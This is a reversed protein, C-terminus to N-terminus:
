PKGKAGTNAPAAPVFVPPPPPVYAPNDNTNPSQREVGIDRQVRAFPPEVRRDANRDAQNIRPTRDTQNITPNQTTTPNTPTTVPPNYYIWPLNMGWIDYGLWYGYPSRWGSGFPLFCYGRWVPDYVWLGYSDYISWRNSMLSNRLSARNLKSNIKALDKAREKSWMEFVDKEDRDFKSVVAEAGNVTATQGKKLPASQGDGVEALGKWVEIKGAGGALVDIRYVGSKVVYFDAKPTTVAVRFEDDAIVEFIATGRNIKVQLNELATTVFEFDTNGGIRVYSGPNLLIEAKGDTETSVKDGIELEDGKLLYGSKTGRRTVAVKGEVYNVGGAKASIVYISSAANIARKERETQAFAAFTLMLGVASLVFIRFFGQKM